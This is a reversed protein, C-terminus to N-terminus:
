AHEFITQTRLVLGLSAIFHYSGVHVEKLRKEIDVVSMCRGVEDEWTHALAQRERVLDRIEEYESQFLNEALTETQVTTMYKVGHSPFAHEFDREAACLFSTIIGQTPVTREHETVLECACMSKHEFRLMHAGPMVWAELEYGAHQLVRRGKLPFLEPHLARGYLVVQYSQLLSQSKTLNM